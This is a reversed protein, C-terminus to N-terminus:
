SAKEKVFVLCDADERWIRWGPLDRMNRAAAVDHPLLVVDVPYATVARSWDNRGYLFDFYEKEYSEPYVTEYRGDMGVLFRPAYFWSIYEGWPFHCLINARPRDKALAALAEVPYYMGLGKATAVSQGPIVLDWSFDKRIRGVTVVICFLCTGMLGGRLIGGSSPSLLRGLRVKGDELLRPLLVGALCALFIAHRVHSLSAYAFAALLVANLRSRRRSSALVGAMLVILLCTFVAIDRYLGTRFATIASAWETIYIRPKTIAMVLYPWYHWGYPNILTALLSCAIIGAGQWRAKGRIPWFCAYIGTLVVGVLFGGHLNAWVMNLPCLWWLLGIRGDRRVHELVLLTLSFLLISGVQARTSTAFMSAATVFPLLLLMCLERSACSLRAARYLIWAAGGMVVFKTLVIGTGGFWAHIKYFVVGTLWEHYVWQPLVPAYSFVDRYPFGHLWFERGFCLYGWLDPDAVGHALNKVLLVAITLTLLVFLGAGKAASM